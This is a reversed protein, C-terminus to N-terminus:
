QVKRIQELSFAKRIIGNIEVEIFSFRESQVTEEPNRPDYFGLLIGEEWRGGAMKPYLYEVRDGVTYKANIDGLQVEETKTPTIVVSERTPLPKPKNVEPKKTKGRTQKPTDPTIVNGFIDRDM